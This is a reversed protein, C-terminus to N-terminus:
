EGKTCVAVAQGECGKTSTTVDGEPWTLTPLLTGMTQAQVPLALMLATLALAAAPALTKM